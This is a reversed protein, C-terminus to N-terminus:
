MINTPTLLFICEFKAPTLLFYFKPSVEKEREEMKLFRNQTQDSLWNTKHFDGQKSLRRKRVLYEGDALVMPNLDAKGGTDHGIALVSKDSYTFRIQFLASCHVHTHTHPM